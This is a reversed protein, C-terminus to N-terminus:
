QGFPNPPPPPPASSAAGPASFGAPVVGTPPASPDQSISPWDESLLSGYASGRAAYSLCFRQVDALAPPMRGLIVGTFWMVISILQSVIGLVYMVIYVPIFLVIRFLVKLRSYSEQAPAIRLGVPYEPHEGLDFPPYRDVQLLVYANQRAMYRVVRAVFAYAGAPYRGTFVIAFWAYIVAFAAGIGYVVITVYHPLWLLVRFFVTLRNRRLAPEPEYTVPYAPM